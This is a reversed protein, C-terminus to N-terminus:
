RVRRQTFPYSAVVEIVLTQMRYDNKAIAEMLQDVVIEDYGQLPRCLAYALFREVLNRAVAEERGAVIAKLDRPSAFREGSPLEGSADIAGGSDDVERWRGIADFNELGFGIPDLVKHCNACTANTVHLETRERLTLGAVEKQDQKELPPVNAPPPPVHEGLVQELVWVGRKVPSTRNPFSTTALVAPMGLIGGRNPDELKVRRMEPGTISGDLGYLGALTGNLFTHDSDVFRVVSENKRVIDEFFLRAEEVMAARMEATMLPYKAEDFTKSELDGLGLWQAGFGDFLARSRPDMLLRKVQAKLVEPQHLTGAAALEYLAADPVTSWILYSLRSAMQYDDLPVIEQESDIEEAPTIFLFQPSVLVAKFLLRLAEPYGLENERALDYVGVLVEVEEDTPPRRYADRALRRAVKRAAERPDEGKGPPEEFLRKQVATPPKGMPALIQDLVANAIGLYLESQLPSLTNLYGAGFVEDPLDEAVSPDVGYLDRLTNGYEVKTLRRLVFPGPDKPSLYKIKGIWDEFQRREEDTPLKEEDDPPMDFDKVNSVALKWHKLYRAQGPRKLAAILDVGGKRKKNGHCDSCYNKVFPTVQESFGKKTEAQLAAFAEDDLDTETLGLVSSLFWVGAGLVSVAPGRRLRIERGQRRIAFHIM